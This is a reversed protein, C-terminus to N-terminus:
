QILQQWLGVTRPLQYAKPPSALREHYHSWDRQTYICAYKEQYIPLNSSALAMIPEHPEYGKDSLHSTEEEKQKNKLWM